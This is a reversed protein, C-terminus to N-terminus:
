APLVLQHFSLSVRWEHNENMMLETAHRVEEVLEAPAPADRLRAALGTLLEEMRRSREAIRQHDLLSGISHIAAGWAPLVIALTTILNHLTLAGAAEHSSPQGGLWHLTAMLLTGIFLWTGVRHAAHADRHRRRAAKSHFQAQDELWAAVLFARLEKFSPAEPLRTRALAAIWDTSDVVWTEPECYFPLSGNGTHHGEDRAAVLSTFCLIRLREALHRDRLWKEHWQERRSIALLMLALLMALIELALLHVPREFVKQVVGVTVAAASLCFLWKATRVYLSQYVIALVDARLYYPLICNWVPRVVQEPIGAAEAARLLRSITQAEVELYRKPDCMPDHNYYSLARFDEDVLDSSEPRTRLPRHVLGCTVAEGAALEKGDYVRTIIQVPQDPRTANIWYVPRLQQVAYHVADATGGLGLGPRGNWVAIMFNSQDVVRKGAAFYAADRVSKEDSVNLLAAGASKVVAFDPDLALLSDFNQRDDLTTFDTRYDDPELPLVANLRPREGTVTRELVAKAVIRDAGRALSSSVSWEVPTPQFPQHAFRHRLLKPWLLALARLLCTDLFQWGDGRGELRQSLRRDADELATQLQALLRNVASAVGEPDDLERHGTVGIRLRYPLPPWM